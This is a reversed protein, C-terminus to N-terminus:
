AKQNIKPSESAPEVAAYAAGMERRGFLSGISVDNLWGFDPSTKVLSATLM